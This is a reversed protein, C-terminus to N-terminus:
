SRAGAVTALADDYADILTPGDGLPCTTGEVEETQVRWGEPGQAVEHWGIREDLRRALEDAIASRVRDVLRGGLLAAHADIDRLLDLTMDTM